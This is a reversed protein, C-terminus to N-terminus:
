AATSMGQKGTQFGSVTMVTVAVVTLLLVSGTVIGLLRKRTRLQQGAFGALGQM